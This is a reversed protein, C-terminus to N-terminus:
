PELEPMHGDAARGVSGAQQCTWITFEVPDMWNIVSPLEAAVAAIEADSLARGLMGQAVLQVNARTLTYLANTDAAREISFLPTGDPRAIDQPTVIPKSLTRYDDLKAAEFDDWAVQHEAAAQRLIAHMEAGKVISSHHVCVILIDFAGQVGKRNATESVWWYRVPCEYRRAHDLLVAVDRGRVAAYQFEYAAYFHRPDLIEGASSEDAGGALRQEPTPM